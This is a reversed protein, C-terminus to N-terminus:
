QAESSTAVEHALLEEIGDTTLWAHLEDPSGSLRVLGKAAMGELLMVPFDGATLYEREQTGDSRERLENLVEYEDSNIM